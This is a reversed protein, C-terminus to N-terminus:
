KKKAEGIKEEIKNWRRLTDVVKEDIKDIEQNCVKKIMEIAITLQDFYDSRHNISFQCIKSM